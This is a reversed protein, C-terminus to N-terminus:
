VFVFISMCLFPLPSFSPCLCPFSPPLSPLLPPYVFLVRVKFGVGEEVEDKGEGEGEEQGPGALAAYGKIASV